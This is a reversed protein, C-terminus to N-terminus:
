QGWKGNNYRMSGDMIGTIFAFYEPDRQYFQLPQFMLWELGKSVIETTGQPYRKGAYAASVRDRFLKDFADQRFVENDDHDENGLYDNLKQYPNHGCRHDQFAQAAELVGPVNLEIYHGLEHALEIATDRNPDSDLELVRFYRGQDDEGEYYGPRVGKDIMLGVKPLPTGSKRLMPNIFELAQNMADMIHPPYIKFRPAFESKHMPIRDSDDVSLAESVMKRNRNQNEQDRKEMQAVKRATIWLQTQEKQSIGEPSNMKDLLEEGIKDWNEYSHAIAKSTAEVRKHITAMKDFKTRDQLVTKLHESLSKVEDPSVITKGPEKSEGADGPAPTGGGAEAYQGHSGSSSKYEGQEMKGYENVLNRAEEIVTQQGTYPGEENLEPTWDGQKIPSGDQDVLRWRLMEDKGRGSSDFLVYLGGGEPNKLVPIDPLYRTAAVRRDTQDEPTPLFGGVEGKPVSIFRGPKRTTEYQGPRFRYPEPVPIKQYLRQPHAEEGTRPATEM